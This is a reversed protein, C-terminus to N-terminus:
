IKDKTTIRVGFIRGAIKEKVSEFKVTVKSKGSTLGKPIAYFKDFLAYPKNENLLEEAILHDDVYINFERICRIGDIFCEKDSGWYTVALYVEKDHEVKMEYSFYGENIVERWGKGAESSYDSHSNVSKMKHEIEPQQENTNVLDLTIKDLKEQYDMSSVENQKYEEKTMKTWYITYREHHLKYFPILTSKVSGPEGIAETEFTLISNEVKKICQEINKEDTVLTPVVIGPYHNLKLHDELIDTEPFNERGLAGALVLPGYMFAIKHSDEKSTYVHINMPLAVEIVDGKKWNGEIAIYGSDAKSYEEKGNVVVKVEGNVWYPVRINITMFKEEAEEFILKTRDEEPFKTIQNLVIGKDELQIKSAIFLNVFLNDEDRYYINRIYRGPNEMGTGTCCWFSNDPSCYIKFHGPQTSVFYTKMGSEPDQSALIHNYLANEYYDMYDSNHEWAYLHETLKLMNYTNCTEATTVGLKETNTKGFHEDRSNGGIAYSRSKTVVSWFFEAAEKYEENGLIEYLRSAGIVKPIQTNAHKGELDDELKTLPSLTEKHYFRKSLELYDKNKTIEYLNAMAECMGGHECYLMKDFQEETLNDTGKKAWDSLKVVVQLAQENGTLVYADILGAFIKHISYWPVWSDGLEFRTVNFDGSFVKDFCERPFGSVYDKDDLSQLYALEAVAYDLKEKLKEDKDAVYMSALASLFHGLSHGSIKMAEWGGYRPKKPAKGIAEYCPALLRDVDLYVLYEKGKEQSTKFLGNLLEVKEMYEHIGKWLLLTNYQM